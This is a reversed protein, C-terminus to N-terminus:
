LDDEEDEVDDDADIVLDDDSIEGEDFEDELEIDFEEEDGTAEDDGLILDDEDAEDEDEDDPGHKGNVPHAEPKTSFPHEIFVQGPTSGTVHEHKTNDLDNNLELGSTNTGDKVEKQMLVNM